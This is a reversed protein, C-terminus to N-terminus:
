FKYNMGVRILTSSATVKYKMYDATAGAAMTEKGPTSVYLAETKISWPSAMKYEFGVGGVLGIRNGSADYNAAPTGINYGTAKLDVIALGGTAYLLANDVAMGARGRLTTLSTWKSDHGAGSSWNASHAEGKFNTGSIDAEVGVLVAPSLMWNYGADVGYTIGMKTNENWSTCTIYCDYDDVITTPMGLGVVGGVYGGGWDAANSVAPILGIAAILALKILNM